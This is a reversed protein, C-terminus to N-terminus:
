GFNLLRGVVSSGAHKRKFTQNEKAKVIEIYAVNVRLSQIEMYYKSDNRKQLSLGFMNHFISMGMKIYGTRFTKHLFPTKM